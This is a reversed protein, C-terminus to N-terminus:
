LDYFGWEAGENPTVVGPHFEGRAVAGAQDSGPGGGAFISPRVEMLTYDDAGTGSVRCVCADGVIAGPPMLARAVTKDRVIHAEAQLRITATDGDIHWVQGGRWDHLVHTHPRLARAVPPTTPIM